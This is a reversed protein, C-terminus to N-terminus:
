MGPHQFKNTLSAFLSICMHLIVNEKLPFFNLKGQANSVDKRKFKYKHSETSKLDDIHMRSIKTTGNLM